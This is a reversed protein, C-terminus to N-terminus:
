PELGDHESCHKTESNLYYSSVETVNDIHAFYICLLNLFCVMEPTDCYSIPSKSPQIQYEFRLGERCIKTHKM